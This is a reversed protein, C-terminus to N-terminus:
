RVANIETLLWRDHDRALVLVLRRETPVARATKRYRWLAMAHVRPGRTEQQRQYEFSVSRNARFLSKFFYYAQSPSYSASRGGSGLRVQLGDPHVLEVLADPDGDQWAAAIRAYSARPGEGAAAEARVTGVALGSTAIIWMAGLALRAATM